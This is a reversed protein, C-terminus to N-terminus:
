GVVYYHAHAAGAGVFRSSLPGDGYNTTGAQGTRISGNAGTGIVAAIHGHGGSSLNSTTVFVAKGSAALQGAQAASVEQVGNGSRAAAALQQYQEHANGAFLRQVQPTNGLMQAAYAAAFQNCHTVGGRPQLDSRRALQSTIALERANVGEGARAPTTGSDFGDTQLRSQTASPASQLAAATKADVTGTQPLHNAAQFSRVARATNPGFQGDIAGPSFGADTLRQQVQRVSSSMSLSRPPLVLSNLSSTSDFSVPM